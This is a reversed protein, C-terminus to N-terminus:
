MDPALLGNKNLFEYLAEMRSLHAFVEVFQNIGIIGDYDSDTRCLM